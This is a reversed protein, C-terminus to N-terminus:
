GQIRLLASSSVAQLDTLVCDFITNNNEVRARITLTHQYGDGNLLTKNSVSINPPFNSAELLTGNLRWDVTLAYPHQCNFVAIEGVTINLSSPGETFDLIVMTTSPEVTPVSTLVLNTM